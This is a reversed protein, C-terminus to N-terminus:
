GRFGKGALLLIPHNAHVGGSEGGSARRKFDVFPTAATRRGEV